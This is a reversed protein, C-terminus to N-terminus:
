EDVTVEVIPKVMIKKKPDNVESANLSTCCSVKQPAVKTYQIGNHTFVAGEQLDKFAITPM